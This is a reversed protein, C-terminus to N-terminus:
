SLKWRERWEKGPAFIKILLFSVNEDIKRLQETSISKHKTLCKSCYSCFEFYQRLKRFHIRLYLLDCFLMDATKLATQASYIHPPGNSFHYSPIKLKCSNKWEISIKKKTEQGEIFEKYLKGLGEGGGGGGGMVKRITRKKNVSLM